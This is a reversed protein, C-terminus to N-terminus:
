ANFEKSLDVSIDFAIFNALEPPMKRKARIFVTGCYVSLSHLSKSIRFRWSIHDVHENDEEPKLEISIM